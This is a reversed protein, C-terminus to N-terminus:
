RRYLSTGGCSMTAIFTSRETVFIIKAVASTAAAEMAQASSKGARGTLIKTCVAAPLESSTIARSM